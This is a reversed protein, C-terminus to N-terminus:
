VRVSCFRISSDDPSFFDVRIAPPEEANCYVKYTTKGEVDFDSVDDYFLLGEPDKM